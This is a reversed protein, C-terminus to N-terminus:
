AEKLSRAEYFGEMRWRVSDYFPQLSTDMHAKWWKDHMSVAGGEKDRINPFRINWVPDMHQWVMRGDKRHAFNLLNQEPYVPDFANEQEMLWVYYDFMDKSPSFIFFGANFYDPDKFDNNEVTPPYAHFFNTEPISALLYKSPVPEEEAYYDEGSDLLSTAPDDFLGDMCSNLIMDGDLFAVRKYQTLEWARLKTMVDRWEPMGGVIWDSQARLYAVPIVTAGDDRLLERKEESIDETVLVVFPINRKTRTGPQHLLQYGLIRTAVYYRDHAPDPDSLNAMTGTLFTMYALGDADTDLFHSQLGTVLSSAYKSVNAPKIGDTVTSSWALLSLIILTLATFLRLLLLTM